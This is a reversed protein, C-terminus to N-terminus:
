SLKEYDRVKGELQAIIEYSKSGNQEIGSALDIGEPQYALLETINSLNIGGAIWGQKKYQAMFKSFDPIIEWNFSKGTGGFQGNVKTDLLISDSFHIVNRIEQKWQESFGIAKWVLCGTAKKIESLLEPPEDGHCQIIDLPIQKVAEEIDKLEPNVFVGVLKQVPEAQLESLYHAAKEPPIYRKSGRFFNFGLYDACSNSTIELDQFTKVGCYKLKTNQM